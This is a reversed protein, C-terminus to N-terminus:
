ESLTRQVRAMNRLTLISQSDLMDVLRLVKEVV